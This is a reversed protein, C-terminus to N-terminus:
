LSLEPSLTFKQLINIESTILELESTLWKGIAAPRNFVLELLM